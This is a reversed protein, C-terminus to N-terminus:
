TLIEVLRLAFTLDEGRLPDNADLRLQDQRIELVQVSITHGEQTATRLTDRVGPQM